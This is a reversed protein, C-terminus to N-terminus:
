TQKKGSKNSKNQITIMYIVSLFNLSFGLSAVVELYAFLVDVGCKNLLIRGESRVRKIPNPVQSSYGLFIRRDIELVFVFVFVFFEPRLFQVMRFFCFIFSFLVAAGFM